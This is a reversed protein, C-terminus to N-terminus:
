STTSRGTRACSWPRGTWWARHDHDRVPLASAEEDEPGPGNGKIGPMMYDVIVANWHIRGNVMDELAEEPDTYGDM